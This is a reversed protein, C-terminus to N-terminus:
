KFYPEYCIKNRLIDHMKPYCFNGKKFVAMALRPTNVWASQVRLEVQKDELFVDKFNQISDLYYYFWGWPRPNIDMLFYELRTLEQKFELEIFGKYGLAALYTEIQNILTKNALTKDEVYASIGKPYQNKQEVAILSNKHGNFYGAVAIQKYHQSDLYPQLLCNDVISKLEELEKRNQIKKFKFPVKDNMSAKPKAAIPFLPNELEIEPIYNTQIAFAIQSINTKDRLFYHNSLNPIQLDLLHNFATESSVIINTSDQIVSKNFARGAGKKESYENPFYYLVSAIGEKHFFKYLNYGTKAGGIIQVKNNM